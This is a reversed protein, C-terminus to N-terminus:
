EFLNGYIKRMKLVQPKGCCDDVKSIRIIKQLNSHSENFIQTLNFAEKMDDFTNKPWKGNELAHLLRKIATLGYHINCPKWKAFHDFKNAFGTLLFHKYYYLFVICM